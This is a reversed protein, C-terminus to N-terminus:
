LDLRLDLVINLMRIIITVSQDRTATAKPAFKGDGVGNVIGRLSATSDFTIAVQSAAFAKQTESTGRGLNTLRAEWM